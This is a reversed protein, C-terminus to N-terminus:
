RSASACRPQVAGHFMGSCRMPQPREQPCLGDNGSPGATPRGQLRQGHVSSAARVLDTEVQTRMRLPLEAEEGSGVQCRIVPQRHGRRRAGNDVQGSPEVVGSNLAEHVIRQDPAHGGNWQQASAQGSVTHLTAGSRTRHARRQGQPFAAGHLAVGFHDHRPPEAAHTERSGDGLHDYRLRVPAMPADVKAPRLESDHELDVAKLVMVPRPLKRSVVLPSRSDLGFAPPHQACGHGLDFAAPVRQLRRECQPIVLRAGASAPRELPDAVRFYAAGPSACELALSSPPVSPASTGSSTLERLTSARRPSTRAQAGPSRPSLPPLWELM